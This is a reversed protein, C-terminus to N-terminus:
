SRSNQNENLAGFSKLLLEVGDPGLYSELTSRLIHNERELDDLQKGREEYADYIDANDIPPNM